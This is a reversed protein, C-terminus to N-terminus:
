QTRSPEFLPATMSLTNTRSLLDLLSRASLENQFLGYVSSGSGSLQACFAGSALLSDRLQHIQPYTTFVLEEFDNGVQDRLVTPDHVSQEVISRLSSSHSVNELRVHSYAWSTSVRIPPTVTVIWFPLAVSFHDLEEGRSTGAATGGDVFFSVDSGLQAALSKLEGNSLGTGWLANLGVLVAAADSSGGGLGAGIPIRKTLRIAAGGAYHSYNKLLEAARVCLNTPGAPLGHSACDFQISDAKEMNIDDFLDIQHFVTEINHFGDPRKGLIRLGINIKAFARLNM